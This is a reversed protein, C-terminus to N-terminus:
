IHTPEDEEFTENAYEDDGREHDDGREPDDDVHEVKAKTNNQAETAENEYTSEINKTFTKVIPTIKPILKNWNSVKIIDIDFLQTCQDKLEELRTLVLKWETIRNVSERVYDDLNSEFTTNRDPFSALLNETLEKISNEVVEKLARNTVDIIATDLEKIKKINKKLRDYDNIFKTCHDNDFTIKNRLTLENQFELGIFNKLLNKFVHDETFNKTTNFVSKDENFYDNGIKLISTAKAKNDNREGSNKNINNVDDATLSQICNLESMTLQSEIDEILNREEYSPIFFLTRNTQKAIKMVKKVIDKGKTALLFNKFKMSEDQKLEGIQSHQQLKRNTTSLISPVIAEPIKPLGATGTGGRSRKRTRKGKSGGVVMSRGKRSINRKKKLHRKKM